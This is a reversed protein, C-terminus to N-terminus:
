NGKSCADPPDTSYVSVQHVTNCTFFEAGSLSKGPEDRDSTEKHEVTKRLHKHFSSHKFVSQMMNLHTSSTESTIEREQLVMKDLSLLM